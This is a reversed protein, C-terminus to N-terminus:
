RSTFRKITSILLSRTHSGSLISTLFIIIVFLILTPLSHFFVSHEKFNITLFITFLLPLIIPTTVDKLLWSLHLGKLYKRHIFGIWFLFYIFNTIMWAYGTGAIGFKYTLLFLLPLLLGLYFLSGYIHLDLKGKAYQLYYPLSSIALFGYGIAYSTLVTSGINAIHRDHTWLYLIFNSFTALVIATSVSVVTIIQTSKRYLYILEKQKNETELRVLNPLLATSIPSYTMVIASAVLVSLTFYGYEELSLLRSVILKDTQTVVTWISSTFAISLSFKLTNKIPAISLGIKEIQSKELIPLIKSSKLWLICFEVVAILLQYQFFIEPETGYHWFIPFIGLFRLTAIFVNFSSLWIIKESGSITGRYLGSIWRLAVIIAVIKLCFAVEDTSLKTINLWNKALYDSILFLGSGGIIAIFLFILSLARFLQRYKLPSHGGAKFSATERAITPTLGLDLLNFWAQLMVFFGVLGYAEAGM